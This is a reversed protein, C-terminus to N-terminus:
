LIPSAIWGATCNAALVWATEALSLTMKRYWPFAHAKRRIKAKRSDSKNMM